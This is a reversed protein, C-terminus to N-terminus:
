PISTEFSRAERSSRAPRSRASHARLLPAEGMVVPASHRRGTVLPHLPLPSAYTVYSLITVRTTESTFKSGAPVVSTVTASVKVVFTRVPTHKVNRVCTTKWIPTSNSSRVSGARSSRSSRLGFPMRIRGLLASRLGVRDLPTSTSTLTSVQM